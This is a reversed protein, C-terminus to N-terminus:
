KVFSLKELAVVTKFEGFLVTVKKGKVQLVEGREKATRLRVTSGVKIDEIRHNPRKKAPSPTSIPSAEAQKKRPKKKLAEQRSKELALYKIIEATLKKNSKSPDYNDLFKGMKRGRIVDENHTEIAKNLSETKEESKKSAKKARIVAKEAEVEARLQRSALKAVQNKEKQLDSILTDLEVKRKDLKSKARNILKATIGNNRAVEFTFSSGPPGVELKFQPSLTERDFLMSANLAQKLEAARSKINAYHTTIVGYVGRDYLEEFFVEALAGGLEPDSGTGFEDLLLLTKYDSVKLFHKMRGLRYSYTSLQNEISQNDGIDTLISDFLGMESASNVPVLLGSQLMVQLLGVTKLTISKGGANPGSIVMLRGGKSLEFSQPHTKVGLARNARVLLPHYAKILKMGTAKPLDPLTCELEIALSTRAWVFDLEVLLKNYERILDLNERVKRTLERLIKRVEKREDDKILELEHNLSVVSSPEIFTITGTNSSGLVTGKVRRKYTSQVALVRRDNLFGERTDALWGKELLHKMAQSFKKNISRKFSVMDERIYGLEESAEDKVEGKANFVKDIPEVIDRTPFVNKMLGNLRPAEMGCNKMVELISNVLRSAGAIRWFGSETLVSDKVELLRLEKDLEEFDISPFPAGEVRLRRLEETEELLRIISKRANLPRLSHARAEATPQVCKEALMARIVDFELDSAVQEDFHKLLIDKRM